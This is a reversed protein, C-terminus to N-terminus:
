PTPPKPTSSPALGRTVATHVAERILVALGGAQAMDVWSLNASGLKNMLLGLGIGVVPTLLPLMVVPIKPVLKWIGTILLPTIGAIALEWYTAVSNPLPAPPTTGDGAPPNTQALASFTYAIAAFAILWLWKYNIKM